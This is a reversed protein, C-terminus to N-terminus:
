QTCIMTSENHIFFQLATREDRRFREFEGPEMMGRSPNCSGVAQMLCDAQRADQSFTATM